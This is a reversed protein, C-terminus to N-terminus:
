IRLSESPGAAIQATGRLRAIDWHSIAWALIDATPAFALEAPPNQKLLFLLRYLAAGPHRTEAAPAFTQKSLKRGGEDVLIPIHAYSPTSFGLRQQLYIQRPTSDLLDLGRVVETMGQEADDIVTALHYAYVQDRRFLIFDGIEAALDQTVAGQLKDTFSIRAGETVIRLAHPEHSAQERRSRCFGPYVSSLSNEGSASGLAKRSCTCPYVLGASRLDALAARYRETRQSQYLVPGDWHLSLTELAYQIQDASNPATRYPDLDDIRLLWRGGRAKAQLFGALATYLSGLHLPGTPSPAFRGRYEATPTPPSAPDNVEIPQPFRTLQGTEGSNRRPDQLRHM